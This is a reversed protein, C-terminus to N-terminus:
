AVDALGLFPLTGLDEFRADSGALDAFRRRTRSVIQRVNDPRLGTADAVTHSPSPDGQSQQVAFLLVVRLDRESVLSTLADAQMSNTYSVSASLGCRTPPSSRRSSAPLRLAVRRISSFEDFVVTTPTATAARVLVDLLSHLAALSDPRERPPRRLEIRLVGLNVEAGAAIAGAREAFTGTAEALAADLRVALDALSTVEYLDVWVVNGGGAELEAGVRRLVSTKGYRRPGLLATVRRETVREVLDTVLEDRGHM